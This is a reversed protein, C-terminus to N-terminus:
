LYIIKVNHFHKPKLNEKEKEKEERLGIRGREVM